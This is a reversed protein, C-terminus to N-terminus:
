AAAGCGALANLADQEAFEIVRAVFADLVPEDEAAGGWADLLEIIAFSELFYDCGPARSAAVEALPREFDEDSLVAATARSSPQFAGEIREVFLTADDPLASLNAITDRLTTASTTM